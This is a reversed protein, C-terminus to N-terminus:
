NIWGDWIPEAGTFACFVRSRILIEVYLHPSSLPQYPMFIPKRQAMPMASARLPNRSATFKRATELLAAGIDVSIDILENSTM